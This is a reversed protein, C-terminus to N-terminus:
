SMKVIPKIVSGDASDLFAQNIENFDYFKVLKDFPFRGEKYFDVLSPIFIQPVADGEVVGILSKSEAMIENHIDIEMEPTFGVVALSGMPMLARLASRVVIPVGTTDVGYEAGDGTIAKVSEVIDETKSNITHTAGLDKALALRNDHIDVAIINKCGILKAAMIASLGVAGTGYVVISSGFEPRLRNLVTGSGTQIGCGLPGLLAVDVEKDVKVVNNEKAISYSGFSSQGFFNSVEQGKQTLPTTGDLFRGGFNIPGCHICNAPHGSLCNVCHGCYAFSLVVHDGPEVSTVFDGVKEVIGSGEHGLLVPYPTVGFDRGIADTHCIGTAVIKILVEDARPERLELEETKLDQGQEKALAATIKM